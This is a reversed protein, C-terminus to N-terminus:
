LLVIQLHANQIKFHALAKTAPQVVALNGMAPKFIVCM